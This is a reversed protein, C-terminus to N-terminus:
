KVPPKRAFVAFPMVKKKNRLKIGPEGQPGVGLGAIQGSGVVNAPAGGVMSVGDEKLRKKRGQCHARQSFGKPNSCNISKKYKESWEERMEKTKKKMSNIFRRYVAATESKGMVRARQEMAIAAQIKHAHSRSSSKIKRVSAEADETTAFKLGHITGKPDEDTYLDSHKDSKAPQGPKRPIRESM